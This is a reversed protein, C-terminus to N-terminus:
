LPTRVARKTVPTSWILECLFITRNHPFFFNEKKKEKLDAGHDITNKWDCIEVDLFPQKGFFTPFFYPM